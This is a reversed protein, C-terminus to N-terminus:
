SCFKKTQWSLFSFNEADTQNQSTEQFQSYFLHQFNWSEIKVFLFTKNRFFHKVLRSTRRSAVKRYRFWWFFMFFLSFDDFNLLAWFHVFFLFIFIHLKKGNQKDSIPLKGFSKKLSLDSHAQHASQEAPAPWGNVETIFDLTVWAHWLKGFVCPFSIQSVPFWRSFNEIRKFRHMMEREATSRELM